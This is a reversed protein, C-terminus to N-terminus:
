RRWLRVNSGDAALVVRGDPTVTVPAHAAVEGLAGGAGALTVATLLGDPGRGLVGEAEALGWVADIRRWQPLGTLSQVEGSPLVIRKLSGDPGPALVHRGDPTAVGMGFGAFSRVVKRDALTVLSLGGDADPRVFCDGAAGFAWHRPSVVYRGPIGLDGGAELDWLRLYAGGGGDTLAFRAGPAVALAHIENVWDTASDPNLVEGLIRVCAGDRLRWRRLTGDASASVIEGTAGLGLGTVTQQHGDLVRAQGDTWLRVSGDDSGSAVTHVDTWLCARVSRSHGTLVRVCAGTALDWVRLTADRSGSAALSGDPSVALCTVDGEHGRLFSM